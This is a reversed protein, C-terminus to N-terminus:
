YNVGFSLVRGECTRCLSVLSVLEDLTVAKSRFDSPLQPLAYLAYLAYCVHSQIPSYARIPSIIPLMM